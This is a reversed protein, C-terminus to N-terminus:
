GGYTIRVKSKCELELKFNLSEEGYILREEYESKLKNISQAHQQKLQNTLTTLRTQHSQHMDQFLRVTDTTSSLYQTIPKIM